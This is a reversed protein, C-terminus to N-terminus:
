LHTYTLGVLFMETEYLIDFPAVTLPFTDPQKTALLSNLYIIEVPRSICNSYTVKM